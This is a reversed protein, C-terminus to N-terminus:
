FGWVISAGFLDGTATYLGTNRAAGTPGRPAEQIRGRRDAQWIHQYALDLRARGGIRITAGLTGEAREAEPLLPTVTQDPAAAEHYLVGGRLTLSPSLAYDAGFRLGVTNNYDEYQTRAGLKQFVLPLVAFSSWKTWQYDFLLNLKDSAQVRVGFVIQEPYPIRVSAHQATLAGTRFQTVVVSDLPVSAGGPAIPNGPPLIIGTGIQTFVADGQIDATTRTLWRIGLSIRDTPKVLLGVHFGGSKADGTLEADAFDTGLPIGLQAFTTTGSAVQTALDVRQRLEVQSIVYDFGAGISVWPRPRIAFTPQVYIGKLDSVYALFRGEFDTPWESRLGYPAFVGLGVAMPWPGGLQRTVYFNPVPITNEVADTTLGSVSDQFTFGPKIMTVGASITWRSAGPDVMGAPNAFIATAVNCPAAVGTGARGMMCADHEYVGFGQAESRSAVLALAV